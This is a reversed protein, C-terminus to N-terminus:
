YVKKKATATQYNAVQQASDHGPNRPTSPQVSDSTDHQM